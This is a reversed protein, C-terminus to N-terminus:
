RRHNVSINYAQSPHTMKFGVHLQRFRNSCSDMAIHTANTSSVCGPFGAMNMAHMHTKAEESTQPTVVYRPFLVTSRYELFHHFFRHHTEESICTQEECDDFCWGRGLYRLTGLLLLLLLSTQKGACNTNGDRWKSFLLHIELDKLLEKFKDYPIRFQRRFNKASTTGNARWKCCLNHIM